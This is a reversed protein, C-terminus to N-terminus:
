VSFLTNSLSLLSCSILPFVRLVRARILLLDTQVMAKEAGMKEAM